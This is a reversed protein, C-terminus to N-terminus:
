CSPLPAFDFDVLEGAATHLQIMKVKLAGNCCPCAFAKQKEVALETGIWSEDFVRSESM